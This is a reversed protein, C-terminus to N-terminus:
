NNFVDLALKEIASGGWYMALEGSRAANDTYHKAKSPRYYTIAQTCGSGRTLIREVGDNCLDYVAEAVAVTTALPQGIAPPALQIAIQLGVQVNDKLQHAQKDHGINLHDLM